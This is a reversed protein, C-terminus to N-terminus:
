MAITTPAILTPESIRWMAGDPAGDAWVGVGSGVWLNRYVGACDPTAPASVAAPVFEFSAVPLRRATVPASPLPAVGAPAPVEPLADVGAEDAGCGASPRGASGAVVGTPGIIFTGNGGDPPSSVVSGDGM